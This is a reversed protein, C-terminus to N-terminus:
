RKESFFALFAFIHVPNRYGRASFRLVGRGPPGRAGKKPATKPGYKRSKQGRERGDGCGCADWWCYLVGMNNKNKIKYLVVGDV